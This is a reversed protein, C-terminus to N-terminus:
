LAAVRGGGDGAGDRPGPGHAARRGAPGGGGAGLDAAADAAGAGVAGPAAEAGRGALQQAAADAAPHDVAGLGVWGGGLAVRQRGRVRSNDWRIGAPAGIRACQRIGGVVSRMVNLSRFTPPSRVGLGSPAAPDDGVEVATVAATWLLEARPQPDLTDATPLLQGAWRPGRGHPGGSELVGVPDPVPAATTKTTPWTGACPRPSTARRPRCGGPERASSPVGCCRTPRSPWRGTTTPTATSSKPPTPGPRWGSPWLSGCLRWCGRGRAPSRATSISWATAPWRRRYSWRRTRM